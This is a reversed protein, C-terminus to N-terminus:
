LAPQRDLKAWAEALAQFNPIATYISHAALAAISPFTGAGANASQYPNWWHLRGGLYQALRGAWRNLDTGDGDDFGDSVLLLTSRATLGHGRQRRWLDELSAAIRTGGGRDPTLDSVEALARDASFLKLARTLSTLRTSFAYVSLGREHRMMAHLFQVLPRQFAAMSGSMDLLVTLALPEMIRQSYYLRIWETGERGYRMTGSPSWFRGRSASSTVYSPMVLPKKPRYWRMLGSLEEDTLRDLRRDALVEQSSAGLAVGVMSESQLEATGPYWSPHTLVAEQRRRRAVSALFTEEVFPRASPQRLLMLWELFVLEFLKVETEKKCWVIKLVSFFTDQDRVGAVELARIAAALDETGLSFNLRRLGRWLGSLNQVLVHVDPALKQM